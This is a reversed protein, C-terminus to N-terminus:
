KKPEHSSEPSDSSEDASLPGRFRELSQVAAKLLLDERQLRKFEMEIINRVTTFSYKGVGREELETHAYRRM